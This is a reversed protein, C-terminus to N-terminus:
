MSASSVLADLFEGDDMMDLQSQDDVQTDQTSEQSTQSQSYVSARVTKINKNSLSKVAGGAGAGVEGRSELYWQNPHSVAGTTLEKLHVASFHLGCAIQYHGEELKKMIGEVEDKKLGYSEM